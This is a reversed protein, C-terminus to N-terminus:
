LNKLQNSFLYIASCHPCHHKQKNRYGKSHANPNITEFSESASDNVCRNTTAPSNEREQCVMELTNIEINDQEDIDENESKIAIPNEEAEFLDDPQNGYCEYTRNAQHATCSRQNLSLDKAEDPTAVETKISLKTGYACMNNTMSHDEQDQYALELPYTKLNDQEHDLIPNTQLRYQEDVDVYELKITIPNEEAEFPQNGCCEHTENVQAVTCSRQLLHLDHAADPATVETKILLETGDACINNSMSHDERDQCVLELLNTQLDDQEHDLIPNTQLRYQEDVDVNELKIANATEQAVFPKIECFEYSDTVHPVLCSSQIADNAADPATDETKIFLETGVTQEASHELHYKTIDAKNKVTNQKETLGNVLAINKNCRWRFTYM